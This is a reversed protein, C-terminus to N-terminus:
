KKEGKEIKTEKKGNTRIIAKPAQATIANIQIM